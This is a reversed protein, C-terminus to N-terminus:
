SGSYLITQNPEDELYDGTAWIRIRWQKGSDPEYPIMSLQVQFTHQRIQDLPRPYGSAAYPIQNVAISNGMVWEALKHSGSGPAYIYQDIKM